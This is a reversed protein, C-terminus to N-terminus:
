WIDFDKLSFIDDKSIPKGNTMEPQWTTVQIQPSNNDTFDWIQFLYGEDHYLNSVWEIKLTVGCYNPNLPHRVVEIEDFVVKLYNNREFVRRLNQLYQEITQKNYLIKTSDLGDKKYIEVKSTISIFGQRFVDEIFHIDKQNYATRLREIYDLIVQRRHLDTIGINSPIIAKYLNMSISLYFKEVNGDKDFSIVAEQYEDEGFEREGTPKMMLPINRIQYGSDTTLCHEIIEEDTCMFPSNEWLMAMSQQVRENVEMKAFDLARKESCAANIENLIKTVSSEIQKKVVPNDIGNVITIKIGDAKAVIYTLLCILLLVYRKKKEM